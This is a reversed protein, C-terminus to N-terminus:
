IPLSKRLAKESLNKNGSQDVELEKSEDKSLEFGEAVVIITYNEGHIHRSKVLRM